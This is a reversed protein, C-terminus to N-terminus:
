QVHGLLPSLLRKESPKLNGELQKDLGEVRIALRQHLDSLLKEEMEPLVTRVWLSVIRRKEKDEIFNLTNEVEIVIDDYRPVVPDEEFAEVAFSKQRYLSVDSRTIAVLSLADEEVNVLMLDENEKRMLNVLGVFPIGVSRIKLKLKQFFDEYEKVVSSRAVSALIRVGSDTPFLAYSIRVDDPLLPLQKKIRFRIIQDREKRQAPLTEFFFVFTKQSIEPLVFMVRHDNLSLEELGQRFYGELETRKKINNQYFSPEVLGRDLPCVFHGKIRREKPSVKVGAIYNSALQFAAHLKPQRAFFGMVTDTFAM